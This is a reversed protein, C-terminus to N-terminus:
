YYYHTNLGFWGKITGLIKYFFSANSQIVVYDEVIVNEYKDIVMARITTSGHRVPIITCSRAGYEVDLTVIDTNGSWVVMAGEPLVGSVSCHLDLKDGYNIAYRSAPEIRIRITPDVYVREFTATFTLNQSPMISPVAPSWGTFVHEPKTPSAPAKIVAGEEYVQELYIEGNVIWTVKFERAKVTVNCIANFGGDESTAIIWVNGKSVPTVVGNQDVTAVSKKNSTWIINQNTANLPMVYASLRLTDGKVVVASSNSIKIDTVEIVDPDDVAATSIGNATVVTEASADSGAVDFSIAFAKDSLVTVEFVAEGNANFILEDNRIKACAADDLSATVFRGEAAAAPYATVKVQATENVAAVTVPAVSVGEIECDYEFAPEATAFSVPMTACLLSVLALLAAIVKKLNKKM